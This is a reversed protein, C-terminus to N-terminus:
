RKTLKYARIYNTISAALGEAIQQRYFSNKLFREEKANSIFGVEVLIAPINTEKLVVFRASKIGRNKLGMMRCTSDCIHKAVEKSAAINETYIMDGLIAKLNKSSGSSSSEEVSSSNEAVELAKAVNDTAESFYYTEFGYPQKSKNANVHISIFLDANSKNAIQARRTLPIFKDSSRTLVVNLGKSQLVEKLRKAIDLTIDKEKAGSGGRAGPDDGGHGADIVVKKIRYGYTLSEVTRASPRFQIWKSVIRDAFGSPIVIAGNYFRFPPSVTEIQNNVEATVSGVLINAQNNGKKLILVESFNDWQCDIGYSKCFEM